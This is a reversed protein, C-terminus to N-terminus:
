VNISFKFAYIQASHVYCSFFSLIDLIYHKRYLYFLKRSRNEKKIINESIHMQMFIQPRNIIM